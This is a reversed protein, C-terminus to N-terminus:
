WLWSDSVDHKDLIAHTRTNLIFLAQSDHAYDEAWAKCQAVWQARALADRIARNNRADETYTKLILRDVKYNFEQTFLQEMEDSITSLDLETSPDDLDKRGGYDFNVIGVCARTFHAKPQAVPGPWVIRENASPDAM